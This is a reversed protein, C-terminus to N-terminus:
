LGLINLWVGGSQPVKLIFSFSGLFRHALTVKCLQM